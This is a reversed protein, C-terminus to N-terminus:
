PTPSPADGTCIKEAITKLLSGVEDGTSAEYYNEPKSAISLLLEKLKPDKTQQPTYIALTYVNIGLKKIEDAPNPTYKRPDQDPGAPCNPGGTAGPCPAGDTVFIFNFKRDPFKPLAEKLKEYSFALADHTPTAGLALLANVKPKIIGKVDKYYSIPVDDSIHNDTATTTYPGSFSQIGVISNDSLKNTLSLVAEQLRKIKTVKSATLADMSGSRDLLLDVNILSQCQKFKLTQLQLSNRFPGEPETILEGEQENDKTESLNFGSFGGVLFFAGIVIIGLLLFLTASGKQWFLFKNSSFGQKNKKRALRSTQSRKYPRTSKKQM